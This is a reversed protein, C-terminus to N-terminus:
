KTKESSIKFIRQTPRQDLIVCMKNSVTLTIKTDGIKGINQIFVSKKTYPHVQAFSRRKLNTDYVQWSPNTPFNPIDTVSGYVGLVTGNLFTQVQTGIHNRLICMGNVFVDCVPGDQSIKLLKTTVVLDSTDADTAPQNAAKAKAIAARRLASQKEKEAKRRAAEALAQQHEIEDIDAPTAIREGRGLKIFTHTKEDYAPFRRALESNLEPPINGANRANYYMQKLTTNRLASLPKKNPKGGKRKDPLVRSPTDDAPTATHHKQVIEANDLDKDPRPTHSTATRGKFTHTTADYTPFRRSLEAELEPEIDRGKRRRNSYVQRLSKDPSKTWDTTRGRKVPTKPHTAPQLKPAFKTQIEVTQPMSSSAHNPVEYMRGFFLRMLEDVEAPTLNVCIRAIAAVANDITKYLHRRMQELATSLEQNQLNKNDDTTM